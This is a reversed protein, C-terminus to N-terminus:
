LEGLLKLDRIFVHLSGRLNAAESDQSAKLKTLELELNRVKHALKASEVSALKYFGSDPTFREGGVDVFIEGSELMGFVVNTQSIYEPKKGAPPKWLQAGKYQFGLKELTEIATRKKHENKKKM